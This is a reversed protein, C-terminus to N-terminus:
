SEQEKRWKEADWNVLEDVNAASLYTTAAGTPVSRAIDVFSSAIETADASLSSLLEVAGSGTIRASSTEDGERAADVLAFPRPGLFVSQDPTLPGGGLFAAQSPTLTGSPFAEYWGSAARPPAITDALLPAALRAEVAQLLAVNHDSSGSAAIIGHNGLVMLLPTDADAPDQALRSLISRALPIGPRAYPVHIVRALDALASARDAADALVALAIAGISHVHSVFRHPLLCHISTEISPRLGATGPADQIVSALDETDLVASRAGRLDLAVFIERSDAEKLRTGSAKIWITSGDKVSLNGGAGQVYGPTAGLTMAQRILAERDSTNGSLAVPTSGLLFRM